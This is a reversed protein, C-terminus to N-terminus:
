PLVSWGLFPSFPQLNQPSTKATDQTLHLFVPRRSAVERPSQPQAPRESSRDQWCWICVPSKELGGHPTFLVHPAQRGWPGSSQSSCM